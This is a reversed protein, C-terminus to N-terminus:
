TPVSGEKYWRDFNRKAFSIYLVRLYSLFGQALFSRHKEAHELANMTFGSTLLQTWFGQSEFSLTIVNLQHTVRFWISVHLSVTNEKSLDSKYHHLVINLLLHIFRLFKNTGPTTTFIPPRQFNDYPCVM